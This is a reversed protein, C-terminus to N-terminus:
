ALPGNMDVYAPAVDYRAERCRLTYAVSVYSAAADASVHDGKAKGMPPSRFIFERFLDLTMRNHVQGPLELAPVCPVRGTVLLFPEMWTLMTRVRPLDWAEACRLRATRELDAAFAGGSSGAGCSLEIGLPGLMQLRGALELMENAADPGRRARRAPRAAAPEMATGAATGTRSPCGCPQACLVGVHRM